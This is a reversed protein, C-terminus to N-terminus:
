IICKRDPTEDVHHLNDIGEPLGVRALFIMRHQASQGHIYRTSVYGRTKPQNGKSVRIHKSSLQDNNNVQEAEEIGIIVKTHSQGSYVPNFIKAAKNWQREMQSPIYIHTRAQQSAEM